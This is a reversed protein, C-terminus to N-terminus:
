KNDDMWCHSGNHRELHYVPIFSQQPYLMDQYAFMARIYIDDFRPIVWMCAVILILSVILMAIPNDQILSM